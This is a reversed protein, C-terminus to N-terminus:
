NINRKGFNNAPPPSFVKESMGNKVLKGFNETFIVVQPPPDCVCVCWHNRGQTMCDKCDKCTSMRVKKMLKMKDIETMVWGVSGDGGCVLVRFLDLHQFL